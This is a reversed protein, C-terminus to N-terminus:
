RVKKPSSQASHPQTYKDTYLIYHARFTTRPLHKNRAFQHCWRTWNHTSTRDNCHSNSRLLYLTKTNGYHTHVLLVLGSRTTPWAWTSSCSFFNGGRKPTAHGKRPLDRTNRKLTHTYTSSSSPVIFFNVNLPTRSPNRCVTWCCAFTSASIGSVSRASCKWNRFTLKVIRRTYM